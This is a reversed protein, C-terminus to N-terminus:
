QQDAAKVLHAREHMPGLEIDDIHFRAVDHEITKDSEAAVVVLGPAVRFGEDDAFDQIMLFGSPRFRRRVGASRFGSRLGRWADSRLLIRVAFARPPPRYKIAQRSACIVIGRRGPSRRSGYGGFSTTLFGDPGPALYFLRPAAILALASVRPTGANAPVVANSFRKWSRCAVFWRRCRRTRSAPAGTPSASKASM